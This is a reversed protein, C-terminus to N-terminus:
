TASMPRRAVSSMIPANTVIIGAVENGIGFSGTHNTGILNGAIINRETFNTDVITDSISIGSAAGTQAGLNKNGSIINGEIEDSTGDANTGIINDSSNVIVIADSQNPVAQTGTANLGIINGAVVHLFGGPNSGNQIRVGHRKNGSIVNGEGLAGDNDVGVYVTNFTASILVGAASTTTIEANGVAIQGTADTGIYNGQVKNGAGAEFFEIGSEFNGSIVNRQGLISGGIQTNSSANTVLIGNAANAVQTVGDAGIGVYNGVITTGDSSDIYIGDGGSGGIVNRAASTSGGIVTNAAGETIAIGYASNAITGNGDSTTGIFNGAVVNSDTGATRINVGVSRNSIVNGETEDNIGDLDTGVFNGSAMNELLVGSTTVPGLAAGNADIGIYNGQVKNGFTNSMGSGTILIRQGIINREGALGGGIRNGSSDAISISWGNGVLNDGGEDVSIYNGIVVNNNSGTSLTIGVDTNGIIVNRHGETTGGILNGSSNTTSIGRGTNGLDSTGDIGTGIFNGSIINGNSGSITIGHGSNNSIINRELETSGGVTISGANVIRIGNFGNGLMGNGTIDTGIYNGSVRHGGSGSNFVIGEAGNDSIVNGAGAVSGGITVSGPLGNFVSIGRYDNGLGSLGDATLGIINGQVLSTQGALNAQLISLGTDSNGSIVNGAGATVGGIVVNYASIVIIGAVNPLAQDGDINTGVYNGQITVLSPGGALQIGATNGSIVNRAQNVGDLLGDAVDDGGIQYTNGNTIFIGSDGNGISQLGDASTGILNGLITTNSGGNIYIGEDANGSIVNGAGTGPVPTFGGIMTNTAGAYIDIGKAGNGIGSITSDEGNIDLGVYNGQILTGVAGTQLTIGNGTNGSIVNGEGAQNGGVVNGSFTRTVDAFVEINDLEISLTSDGTFVAIQFTVPGTIGQLEPFDYLDISVHEFDPRVANPSIELVILNTNGTLNSRVGVFRVGGAGGKAVDFELYSLDLLRDEAAILSFEVFADAEFASDIDTSAEAAGITPAIRLVPQNYDLTFNPDFTGIGAASSVGSVTVDQTVTTAGLQGFEFGALKRYYYAEGTGGSEIYVGDVGNALPNLGDKDTGILNGSVINATTGADAISIGDVANGSIVNRHALTIGGVINATAGGAIKVGSGENPISALGTADTGIYNGIITVNNVSSGELTIGNDDNGSIVNREADTLGGILIDSADNNVWVGTSGNGLDGLGSATVGIYNGSVTINSANEILLPVDNGSIVNRDALSPGGIVHGYATNMTIGWRSGDAIAGTADTGLYNGAITVNSVEAGIRIMIGDIIGPSDDVGNTGFGCMVLGRVESNNAAIQLGIREEEQANTDIGSGDLVVTLVANSGILQSNPVAGLASYGDIFVTETITPLNSALAITGAVDFVIRHEGNAVANADLIAQRLSGAGSDALTTVAFVQGLNTVVVDNQIEGDINQAYTISWIYGDDVFVTGETLGDFNGMVADAFDNEIITFEDGVAPEFGDYLVIDLAGALMVTGTVNVQDHNEGTNGPVTGGIEIELLSGSQLDFDGTYLIGPSNGPAVTGGTEVVVEGDITGIGKLTGRVILSDSPDINTQGQVVMTGGAQQYITGLPANIILDGASNLARDAGLTVDDNTASIEINGTKSTVRSMTVSTGQLFVSAGTLLFDFSPNVILSGVGNSDADAIITLDGAGSNDADAELTRGFHTGNPININRDAAVLFNTPTSSFHQLNADRAADVVIDGTNANLRFVSVNEGVLEISAGKM